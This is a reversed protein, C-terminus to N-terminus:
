QSEAAVQQEVDGKKESPAFGQATVLVQDLGYGNIFCSSIGAVGALACVDCDM